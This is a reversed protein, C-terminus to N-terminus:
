PVVKKGEKVHYVSIEDTKSTLRIVSIGDSYHRRRVHAICFSIRMKPGLTAEERLKSQQSYTMFIINRDSYQKHQLGEFITTLLANQQKHNVKTIVGNCAYRAPFEKVIVSNGNGYRRVIQM